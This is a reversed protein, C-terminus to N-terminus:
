WQEVVLLKKDSTSIKGWLAETIFPIFPHLLKLSGVLILILTQNTEDNDLKKAEEIYKDCFEHWFFDYLLHLAPGFEYSEILRAVETKTTEFANLINRNVSNDAAPKKTIPLQYNTIGSRGLVFRGANWIKNLFKKGAVVAEQQWRIDQGGMSQWVLAFRVADAGHQGILELPDIGTGLSKSMRKGDKTLVTAHVIIDKFPAQGMFELGSFIMRADWLNIIGRDNTILNTPYFRELDSSNEPEGFKQSKVKSKQSQACAIPWGLTAFPWLASSFWTDLVDTAQEMECDGCSPCRSPKEETILGRNKSSPVQFKSSGEQKKSCYFVPLQHGWWIQRSICWDRINDLWDFYTKAFNEPHFKVGGNKVAKSATQALEKMKLFWQKSLIPELVSGCRYCVAVRHQYSKRSVLLGKTELDQVIQKRAEKATLGAYKGALGTMKGDPGIVQKKELNHKEALEFDHLDHAPTVKMAGTGFDMDVEPDAIVKMKAPGLVTEIELEKGIYKKYRPDQPNVAIATDGLKTEPRVTGIVLPGYKIEYWEADEEKYEVELDSLSTACRPCWNVTREGQYIWGKEYYHVFAAKVAEQYEPDMTFRARSWDASVGLKKLQDVIVGGYKEKWEWVKELFKERGLDHRSLGQKKLEKEVVNQTAIGAHDTGPLWLTEFGQMRKFRILIDSLTYELAHGMHLSGTVNPPAMTICFRPVQFKSSPVQRGASDEACAPLKSSKPSQKRTSGGEDGRSDAGVAPLRDPNFYGSDEWIKYIKDEHEKPNYPKDLDSM